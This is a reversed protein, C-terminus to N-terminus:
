YQYKNLIYWCFCKKNIESGILLVFILTFTVETAAKMIMVM